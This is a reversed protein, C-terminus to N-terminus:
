SDVVLSRLSHKTKLNFGVFTSFDAFIQQAVQAKPSSWSASRGKFTGLLKFRERSEILQMSFRNLFRRGCQKAACRRLRGGDRWPVPRGVLLRQSM